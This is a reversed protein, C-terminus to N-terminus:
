IDAGAGMPWRNSPYQILRRWHLQFLGVSCLTAIVVANEEGADQKADEERRRKRRRSIVPSVRHNEFSKLGDRRLGFEEATM